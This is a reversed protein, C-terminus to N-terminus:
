EKMENDQQLVVNVYSQFNEEKLYQFTGHININIESLTWNPATWFIRTLNKSWKPGGRGGQTMRHWKAIGGRWLYKNFELVGGM